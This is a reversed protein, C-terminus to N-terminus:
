LLGTLVGQGLGTGLTVLSPPCCVAPSLLCSVPSFCHVPSTNRVSLMSCPGSAWHVPSGAWGELTM